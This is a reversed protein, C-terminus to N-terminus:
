RKPATPVTRTQYGPTNEGATIERERVAGGAAEVTVVNSVPAVTSGLANFATVICSIGKGADGAAVVYTSGTATNSSGDTQWDYSYNTPENEWNGMTCTLASGVTGAGSVHPVDRNVPPAAPGEPLESGPPETPVAQDLLAQQVELPPMTPVDHVEKEDFTIEGLIFKDVDAATPTPVTTNMVTEAELNLAARVQEETFEEDAEYATQVERLTMQKEEKVEQERARM